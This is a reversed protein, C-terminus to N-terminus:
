FYGMAIYVQPRGTFDSQFVVYNGDPSFFPHPHAPQTKWSTRPLLLYRATVYPPEGDPEVYTGTYMFSYAATAYGDSDSVFHRGSEDFGFHCADARAVHRTLDIPAAGPAHIGMWLQAEETVPLPYAEILPARWRGPPYHYVSAVISSGQGRWNCHGGSLMQRDRGIPVVRWNAGDDRVVHLASGLEDADPPVDQWRWSGDPPTLWSGDSLRPLNANLCLDHVHPAVPNRSYQCHMNRYGNGFEIAHAHGTRVNFIIAGWPAGEVIGDGLFVGFAIREGDASISLSGRARLPAPTACVTTQAMTNLDIQVVEVQGARYALQYLNQGDPSLVCGFSHGDHQAGYEMNGYGDRYECAPRIAFDEQVECLWCGPAQVGDDSAGRFFLLRSSDASWSPMDLYFAESDRAPDNCIQVIQLQEPSCPTRFEDRECANTALAM